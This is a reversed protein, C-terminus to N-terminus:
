LGEERPLDDGSRGWLGVNDGPMEVFQEIKSTSGFIKDAPILRYILEYMWKKMHSEEDESNM